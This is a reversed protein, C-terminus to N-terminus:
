EVKLLDKSDIDDIVEIAGSFHKKIRMLTPLADLKSRFAGTKLKYYPRVFNWDSGMEPFLQNFKRQTSELRQRESSVIIQIRYGKIYPNDSNIEKYKELMAQVEPEERVQQGM